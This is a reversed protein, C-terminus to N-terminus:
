FPLPVQFGNIDLLGSSLGVRTTLLDGQAEVFGQEVAMRLMMSSQQNIMAERMQEDIDAQPNAAISQDIQSTVQMRVLQEALARDVELNLEGFLAYVLGAPNAPNVPLVVMDGDIHLELSASFSQDGRSFRLPDIALGPDNQLLNPLQQSAFLQLAAMSAEDDGTDIDMLLQIYAEVVEISIDLYAFGMQLDEFAQGESDLRNASFRYSLDLTGEIEAPQSVYAMTVQQMSGSALSNGWEVTEFLWDMQGTYLFRAGEIREFSGTIQQAGINLRSRDGAPGYDLMIEGIRSEIQHSQGWGSILFESQLGGFDAEGLPVRNSTLVYRFAALGAALEIEGNFQVQGGLNGLSELGVQNLFGSWGTGLEDDLEIEFAAAAFGSGRQWLLPGHEVRVPILLPQLADELLAQMGPPMDETVWQARDFEVQVQYLSHRYGRDVQLSFQYGPWQIESVAARADKEMQMGVYYPSVLVLVVLALLFTMRKM